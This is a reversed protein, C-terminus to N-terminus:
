KNIYHCKEHMLHRSAAISSPSTLNPPVKYHFNFSCGSTDQSKLKILDMIDERTFIIDSLKNSQPHVFHHRLAQKVTPTCLSTQSSTQSHTYLIIDSLKNSQPHVFHHRLATQSHTNLSTRQISLLRLQSLSASPLITNTM